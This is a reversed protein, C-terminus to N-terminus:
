ITVKGQGVPECRFRKIRWRPNVGVWEAMHPQGYLMCQMPTVAEAMYTLHVDKCTAPSAILCASFVLEIM